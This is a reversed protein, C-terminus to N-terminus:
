SNDKIFKFFHELNDWEKYEDLEWSHGFLHFENCNNNKMKIFLKKGYDLWNEDNYERREVGVHLQPRILFNSENNNDDSLITLRAYDFNKSITDLVSKNYRGRPYCFKKVEKNLTNQWYKKSEVIEYDANVPNLDTLYHHNVTHAGVEFDKSIDICDKLTLFRKCRKLNFPNKLNNQWFFIGNMDYKKLLEALRIDSLCADDWSTIINM